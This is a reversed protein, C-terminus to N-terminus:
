PDPSPLTLFLLSWLLSILVLLSVPARLLPPPALAPLLAVPLRGKDGWVLLERRGCLQLRLVFQLVAQTAPARGTAVVSVTSIRLVSAWYGTHELSYFWDDKLLVWPQVCKQM